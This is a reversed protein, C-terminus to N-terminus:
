AKWVFRLEDAFSHYGGQAVVLHDLLAIGVLEGAARLRRTLELDDASPTPDGSPHNHAVITGVAGERVLRRFVDRPSVHVVNMAGRAAMFRAIERHRGDLAIVHLEEQELPALDALRAAAAAPSTIPSGREMGSRGARQGLELAALLQCARAEGVGPLELLEGAVARMMGRAGGLGSVVQQACLLDGGIVLAVLEVDSLAARGAALLRERPRESSPLDKIPTGAARALPSGARERSSPQRPTSDVAM